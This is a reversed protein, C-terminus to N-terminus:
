RQGRSDSEPVHPFVREELRNRTLKAFGLVSTLPTRLEHSVAALFDTKMREIEESMSAGPWGSVSMPIDPRRRSPEARLAGRPKPPCAGPAAAFRRMRAGTAPTAASGSCGTPRHM